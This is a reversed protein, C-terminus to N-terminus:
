PEPNLWCEFVNLIAETINEAYSESQKVMGGTNKDKWRALLAALLQERDQFVLLLQHSVPEPALGAVHRSGRRCGVGELCRLRGGAQGRAGGALRVAPTQTTAQWIGVHSTAKTLAHTLSSYAGSEQVVTYMLSVPLIM